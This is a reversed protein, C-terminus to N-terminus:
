AADRRELHAAPRGGLDSRRPGPASSGGTDEEDFSVRWWPRAPVGSGPPDGFTLGPRTLAVLILYGAVVLGHSALRLGQVRGALVDGTSLLGLVAVFATLVPVIGAPRTRRSAVWLFGAGLAVNWAASEHWLHNPSAGGGVTVDYAHGGATALAAVQALGLFVQAAGLGGLLVRLGVALRFRGRGPAAPLVAAVVDVAPVASGTRALRTVAAADDWWARCNACGALHADVMAQEGPDDEGDLRASLAERCQECGMPNM